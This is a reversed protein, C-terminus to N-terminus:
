ASSASTAFRAVHDGEEIEVVAVPVDEAFLGALVGSDVDSCPDSPTVHRSPEV